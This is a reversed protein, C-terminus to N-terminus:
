TKLWAEAHSFASIGNQVGGIWWISRQHSGTVSPPAMGRPTSGRLPSVTPLPLPPPAAGRRQGAANPDRRPGGRAPLPAPAHRRHRAPCSALDWRRSGRPPRSTGVPAGCRGAGHPPPPPLPHRGAARGAGVEQGGGGLGGVCGRHRHRRGAAGVAAGSSSWSGWSVTAAAWVARTLAAGGGGPAHRGVGSGGM